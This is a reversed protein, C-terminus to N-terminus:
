QKKKPTAFVQTYYVVGKDTRGFGLGIQTFKHNLINERHMKSAMWAKVIEELDVEGYAVNEGAVYYAYGAEKIRQYPNKNDLIHSMKEQRAMNASHARAVQFLIPDPQLSPVDHKKREQNTLDLLQQEEQSLRFKNKDKKDASGADLLGAFACLAVVAFWRPCRDM